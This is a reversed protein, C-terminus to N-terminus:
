DTKEVQNEPFWAVARIPSGDCGAINLPLVSVHVHESPLKDLGTLNEVIMAGAGLITEHVGFDGESGDVITEDPSMTDVGLVRVGMEVLKKAAERDIFPHDLYMSTKWHKSWGTRVFLIHCNEVLSAVNARVLDDWSIRERAGKSTLDAVAAPGVLLSLDLEDVTKKDEFFHYPADIHTGTHSGLSLSSVNYGHEKVFAVQHCSFVPDGPYPQTDVDLKHSLDYVLM